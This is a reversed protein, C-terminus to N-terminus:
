ELACASSDRWEWAKIAFFFRDGHIKGSSLLNKASNIRLSFRLNKVKNLMVFSPSLIAFM